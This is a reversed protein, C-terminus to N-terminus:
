CVQQQPRYYYHAHVTHGDVFCLRCGIKCRDQSLMLRPQVAVNMRQDAIEIIGVVQKLLRRENQPLLEPLEIPLPAKEGPGAPNGAQFHSVEEAASPTLPQVEAVVQVQKQNLCM